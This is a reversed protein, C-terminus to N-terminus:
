TFVITQYPKSKAMVDRFGRVPIYLLVQSTPASSVLNGRLHLWPWALWRYYFAVGGLVLPPKSTSCISAVGAVFGVVISDTGGDVVGAM